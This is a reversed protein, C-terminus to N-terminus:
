LKPSNKPDFSINKLRPKKFSRGFENKWAIKNKTSKQTKFLSSFCFFCIPKKEDKKITKKEIKAKIVKKKPLVPIKSFISDPSKKLITENWSIKAPAKKNNPKTDHYIKALRLNFSSILPNSASKKNNIKRNLLHIVLRLSASWIAFNSTSKGYLKPLSIKFTKCTIAFSIIAPNTSKAWASPIFFHYIDFFDSLFNFLLPVQNKGFNFTQSFVIRKCIFIPGNNILRSCIGLRKKGM